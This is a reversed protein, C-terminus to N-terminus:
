TLFFIYSHYPDLKAFKTAAVKTYIRGLHVPKICTKKNGKQAVDVGKLHHHRCGSLWCGLLSQLKPQDQQDRLRHTKQSWVRSIGQRCSGLELFRAAYEPCCAHNNEDKHDKYTCSLYPTGEFLAKSHPDSVVSLRTYSGCASALFPWM